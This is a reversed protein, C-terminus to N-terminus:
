AITALSAISTTLLYLKNLLVLHTVENTKTEPKLKKQILTPSSNADDSSRRNRALRQLNIMQFLLSIVICLNHLVADAEHFM